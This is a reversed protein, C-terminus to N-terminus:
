PSVEKNEAASLNFILLLQSVGRKGGWFCDARLSWYQLPAAVTGDALLTRVYALFVFGKPTCCPKFFCPKLLTKLPVM